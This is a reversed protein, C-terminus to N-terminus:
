NNIRPFYLANSLDVCTNYLDASCKERSYWCCRHVWQWAMCLKGTGALKQPVAIGFEQNTKNCETGLQCQWRIFIEKIHLLRYWLPTWRNVQCVHNIMFESVAVQIGSATTTVSSFFKYCTATQAWVQCKDAACLWVKWNWLNLVVTNKSSAFSWPYRSFVSTWQNLIFSFLSTCNSSCWCTSSYPASVRRDGGPYIDISLVQLHSSWTTVWLCFAASVRFLDGALRLLTKHVILVSICPVHMYLRQTMTSNLQHITSQKKCVDELLSAHLSVQLLFFM